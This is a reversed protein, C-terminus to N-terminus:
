RVPATPMSLETARPLGAVAGLKECVRGGAECAYTVIQKLEDLPAEKLAVPDPYRKLLAALLASVFGDGAGTTDVVAVKPAPIHVVKNAWLFHAGDPGSTIIPLAVGRRRLAMLAQDVTEEGTVFAMEDSSVKVVTCLPIIQYLVSKLEEPNPWLHLRLNPDCSLIRGAQHTARAMALVARQAEPLLLSNSGCHMARATALFSLDVDRGALFQEAARTRFFTFSRDGSETLSVFVLGTKGENTQRLHSVDVGERALGEKLFAGFEDDGTVGVLASKGGLRAVGVAVNAPSGGICPAWNPIDRVRKRAGDAPLFDVLAEGVCILDLSSAM